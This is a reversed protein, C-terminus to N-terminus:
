PSAAPSPGAPPPEARTPARLAALGVGALVVLIVDAGHRLRPGGYTLAAAATAAVFPALLIPLPLGRRRRWLAVLALLAIAYYAIVGAQQVRVSRGTVVNHRSPEYLGWLGAVRVGAVVVARGPNDRMHDLGRDRLRASREAEDEGPRLPDDACAFAFWGVDAGHYTRDCNTGALTTGDNTSILPRDFQSWNRVVWPALVVLTAVAMAAALSWRRPLRALAAAGALLPLLLLWETRALTALAILVGLLAAGGLSPRDSLRLAQLVTLAVLLGLLPESMLSGDAAVFAPYLAAIVAAAIGARDGALRRAVLAVVVVTATGVLVGVVRHADVGTAGALSLLALLAPYLPPHEATPLSRGELALEVPRVYGDGDALANATVHYYTDDDLLELDPAATLAYVLRM